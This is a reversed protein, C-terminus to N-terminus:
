RSSAGKLLKGRGILILMKTLQDDIKKSTRTYIIGGSVLMTIVLFPFSLVFAPAATLATYTGFSFTLGFLLGLSKLMTTLFLYWGFGFGSIVLQSIGVASASKIFTILSVASINDVGTAKRIAERDAESLKEIEKRLIEELDQKESDSMSEVKKQIVEIEEKITKEFVANELSTSNLYYRTDIGSAKAARNCIFNALQEESVEEKVEAISFLKEKFKKNLEEESLAELKKVEDKLNREIVDPDWDLKKGFVDIKAAVDKNYKGFIKTIEGFATDKVKKVTKQVGDNIVNLAGLSNIQALLLIKEDKQLQDLGVTFIM